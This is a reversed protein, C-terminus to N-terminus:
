SQEAVSATEAPQESAGRVTSVVILVAYAIITAVLMYPTIPRHAFAALCPITMMLLYVILGRPWGYTRFLHHHLHDRDGAMPSQGRAIRFFFLRLMDIGPVIFMLTMLDATVSVPALNYSFVATLGFFAALGYSGGDGLFILGRMNFTLLTCLMLALPLMIIVLGNPGIFTLLFTWCISAGIVLGNKGDAMNVANIFGALVLLSLLWSSWQPLIYAAPHWSFNVSSIMFRPDLMAAAVFILITAGLRLTAGLSHRDDSIGVLACMGTALAIVSLSLNGIGQPDFVIMIIPMIPAFVVLLAVGGVLPTPQAHLKRTSPYDMLKFRVGIRPALLCVAWTSLMAYVSTALLWVPNESM